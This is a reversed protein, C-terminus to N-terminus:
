IVRLIYIVVRASRSWVNINIDKDFCKNQLHLSRSLHNALCESILVLCVLVEHIIEVWVQHANLFTKRACLFCHGQYDRASWKVERQNGNEARNASRPPIFIILYHRQIVGPQGWIVNTGSQNDGSIRESLFLKRCFQGRVMGVM